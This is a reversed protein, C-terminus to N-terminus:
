WKIFFFSKQYPKPSADTQSYLLLDNPILKISGNLMAIPEKKFGVALRVM